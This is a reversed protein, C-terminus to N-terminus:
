CNKSHNWSLQFRNQILRAMQVRSSLYGVAHCKHITLPTVLCWQVNTLFDLFITSFGLQPPYITATLDGGVGVKGAGVGRLFACCLKGIFNTPAISLVKILALDNGQNWRLNLWPRPLIETRYQCFGAYRLFFMVLMICSLCKVCLSM